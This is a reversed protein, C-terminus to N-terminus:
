FAARLLVMHGTIIVQMPLIHKAVQLGLKRTPFEM